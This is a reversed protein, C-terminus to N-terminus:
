SNVSIGLTFIQGDTVLHQDTLTDYELLARVLTCWGLTIYRDDKRVIINALNTALVQFLLEDKFLWNLIIMAQGGHKSEKSKLSHEIMPVLVEDLIEEREAADRVYKYLFWLSEDLSGLSATKDDPSLRSISDHLKKPRATLLTNMVRGLTVTVMSEPQSNSRWLLQQPEQETQNLDM